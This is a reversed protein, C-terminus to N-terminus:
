CAPLLSSEDVDELCAEVDVRVWRWAGLPLEPLEDGSRGEVVLMEEMVVSTASGIVTSALMGLPISPTIDVDVEVYNAGTYCKQDMYGNGILVPKEGGALWIGNIVVWPAELLKCLYKLRQNQFGEGEAFFRSLLSDFIPNSGEPLTRRLVNIVNLVDNGYPVMRNYVLFCGQPHEGLFAKLAPLRVAAHHLPGSTRFINAQEVSFASSSAPVKLGGELYSGGRLEFREVDKVEAWRSTEGETLDSSATKQLGKGSGVESGATALKETDGPWGSDSSETADRVAAAAAAADEEAPVSDSEGM